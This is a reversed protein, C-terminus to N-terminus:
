RKKRTAKPKTGFEAELAELGRLYAMNHVTANNVRVGTDSPHVWLTEVLKAVREPVDVKTTRFSIM